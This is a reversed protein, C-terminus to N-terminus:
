SNDTMESIIDRIYSRLSDGSITIEGSVDLDGIIDVNKYFKSYERFRATDVVNLTNTIEFDDDAILTTRDDAVYIRSTYGNENTMTLGNRDLKYTADGDDVVFGGDATCRGNTNVYFVLNSNKYLRFKGDHVELGNGDIIVYANSAGVCAVKFASKSLEWGFGTGDQEVVADIKEEQIDLRASLKRDTNKVELTIEDKAFKIQKVTDKIIDTIEKRNFGIEVTDINKNGESDVSYTIKNVRGQLDLNLVKHRVTVTDGEQVTELIAYNKYEETKSLEVFDVTYNFAIQDVKDVTFMKNCAVRMLSYAEEITVQGDQKTNTGDWIDLNLEVDKFYRKEYQNVRPSEICYEPLRYDGSKPILVTALDNINTDVKISSLNKGYEILVGNDVGRSDVIDLKNNDVRYEGGYETLVSNKDGIIATLPNSEPVTLIVNTNSNNDLNGAIYSHPDLCNNLIQAIAQKRTLGTLTAPRIANKKLDALLKSQCQVIVSDSTTQKGIIRFLQDQRDDITPISLIFTEAINSSIGKSDELPYELEATYDGNLEETVKCSIIENLVWENHAFNTENNRFLRIM